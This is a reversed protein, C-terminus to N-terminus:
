FLSLQGSLLNNDVWPVCSNLWFLFASEDYSGSKVVNDRWYLWQYNSPHFVCLLQSSSLSRCLSFATLPYVHDVQHCRSPSDGLSAYIEQAVFTYFDLRVLDKAVLWSYLPLRRPTSRVSSLIRFHSINM